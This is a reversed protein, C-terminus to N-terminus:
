PAGGSAMSSLARRPRERRGGTGHSRRAARSAGYLFFLVACYVLAGELGAALSRSPLAPRSQRNEEAYRALELHARWADAPAVTLAVEGDSQPVLRCDIGTSVLVLANQEAQARAPFRGVEIWATERDDTV